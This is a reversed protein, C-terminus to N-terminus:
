DLPNWMMERLIKNRRKTWDHFVLHYADNDFIQKYMRFHTKGYVKVVENAKDSRGIAKHIDELTARTADSHMRWTLLFLRIWPDWLHFLDNLTMKSEGYNDDM